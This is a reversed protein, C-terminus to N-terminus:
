NKNISWGTHFGFKSGHIKGKILAPCRSMAILEGEANAFLMAMASFMIIVFLIAGQQFYSLAKIKM